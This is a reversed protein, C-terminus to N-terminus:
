AENEIELYLIFQAGRGKGPSDALLDGGMTRALQRSIHLGMGTGHQGKPLENELRSFAKFINEEMGPVFGPGNDTFIVLAKEAQKKVEVTLELNDGVYKVANDILNDFIIHMAEGDGKAIIKEGVAGSMKVKGSSSGSLQLPHDRFYNQVFEHLDVARLHIGIGGKKLKQGILMNEALKRQREVQRLALNRCRCWKRRTLPERQLTELFAKM